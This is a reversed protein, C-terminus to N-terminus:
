LNSFFAQREFNEDFQAGVGVRIDSLIQRLITDFETMAM